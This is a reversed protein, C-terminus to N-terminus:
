PNTSEVVSGSTINVIKINNYDTVDLTITWKTSPTVLMAQTQINDSITKVTVTYTKGDNSMNSSTVELHYSQFIGAIIAGQSLIEDVRSNAKLFTIIKKGNDTDTIDVLNPLSSPITTIYVKEGKIDVTVTVTVGSAGDIEATAIDGEINTINIKSIDDDQFLAAITPDGKIISQALAVNARHNAYPLIGAFLTVLIVTLALTVYTILRGMKTQPRLFAVVTGAWSKYRKPRPEKIRSMVSQTFGSISPATQLVGIQQSVQRYETLRNRCDACEGLHQEMLKRQETSLENDAYASLLERIENCRM